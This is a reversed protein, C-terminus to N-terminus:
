SRAFALLDGIQGEDARHLADMYASRTAGATTMDKAGWSFFESRGYKVVVVDALLRAHRGNGNPFPHILTMQHHVRVAIEDIAHTNHEVWYRADGLLMAIRERIEYVPAAFHRGFQKETTRYMGAWRWTNDFMRHHLERVYPETLPANTNIVRRNYAWNAADLINAREFENLEEKTALNPILQALEDPSLPTNEPAANAEIIQM